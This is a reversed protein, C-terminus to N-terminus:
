IHFSHTVSSGIFLQLLNDILICCLGTGVEISRFLHVFDEDLARLTKYRQSSINQEITSLDVPEDIV